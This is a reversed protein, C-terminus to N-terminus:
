HSPIFSKPLFSNSTYAVELISNNALNSIPAELLRHFSGELLEEDLGINTDINYPCQKM